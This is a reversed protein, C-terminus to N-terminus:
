THLGDSGRMRGVSAVGRSDARDADDRDADDRDADDRRLLPPAEWEHGSWLLKPPKIPFPSVPSVGLYRQFCPPLFDPHPVTEELKRWIFLVSRCMHQLLSTVPFVTCVYRLLEGVNEIDLYFKLPGIPDVPPLSLWRIVSDVCWLPGPLSIPASGCLQRLAPILPCQTTWEDRWPYVHGECCVQM